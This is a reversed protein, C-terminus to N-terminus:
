NKCKRQIWTKTSIKYEKKWGRSAKWGNVAWLMPNHQGLSIALMTFTSAEHTIQLKVACNHLGSSVQQPM